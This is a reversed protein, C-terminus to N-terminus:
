RASELTQRHKGTQLHAIHEQLQARMRGARRGALAAAVPLQWRLVEDNEIPRLSLYRRLYLRWFAARGAEQALKAILGQPQEGFRLQLIAGAVDAAPNGRTALVWDILAAGSSHVIVNLMHIDNHCVTTGDPLDALVRLALDRTEASIADSSEIESVLRERQSPLEESSCEHVSAHLGALSRAASVIGWPRKRVDSSLTIGEQLNGFVIGPRGDVVVREDVDPADVGARVLITSLDAEIPALEAYHDFFLKLIRGDPLVFVESKDGEGIKRMREM